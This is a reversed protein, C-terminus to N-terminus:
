NKFYEFTEKLMIDMSGITTFSHDASEIYITKINRNDFNLSKSLEYYPSNAQVLLTDVKINDIYEQSKNPSWALGEAKMESSFLFPVNKDFNANYINKEKDILQISTSQAWPVDIIFSPDILAQKTVKISNLVATTLGGYSASVLYINEYRDAFFTIIKDLDDVQAQITTNLFNRHNEAEKYFDFRFCDFNLENKIIYDRVSLNMHNHANGGLGHCCIVLSKNNAKELLYGSTSFNDAIPINKIAKEQYM